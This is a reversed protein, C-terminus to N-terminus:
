SLQYHRIVWRVIEKAKEKNGTSQQYAIHDVLMTALTGNFWGGKRPPGGFFKLLIERAESAKYFIHSDQLDVLSKREGKIYVIANAAGLDQCLINLADAASIDKLVNQLFSINM